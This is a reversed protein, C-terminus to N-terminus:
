PSIKQFAGNVKPQDTTFRSTLELLELMFESNPRHTPCETQQKQLLLYKRQITDIQICICVGVQLLNAVYKAATNLADSKARDIEINELDTM